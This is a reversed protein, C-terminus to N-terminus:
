KLRPDLVDRLGDGLLNFGLTSLFIALGPFTIVWWARLILARAQNLMAGWEPTPPQAGLGLFSLGAAEVIATAFGLTTKVLIPAFCNPLITLLLIRLDRAGLSRAAQVYERQREVLVSARVIRAYEPIGVIGIAIIANFLGPGLVAVILIALLIGPFALLIDMFRMILHDLAGSYYGSLAGFIIGFGLSIGVSVLGVQFSIRAGYLIRSLIDRGFDDTGLLHERSGKLDWVPPKLRGYLDQALPDYPALYPALLASTLFLLLLIGGALAAKNKKFRYWTKLTPTSPSRPTLSVETNGSSGNARRREKREDKLELTWM